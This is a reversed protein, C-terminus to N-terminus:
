ISLINLLKAPLYGFIIELILILMYLCKKKWFKYMHICKSTYYAKKAMKITLIDDFRLNFVLGM